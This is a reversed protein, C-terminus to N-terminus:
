KEGSGATNLHAATTSRCPIHQVLLGTPTCAECRVYQPETAPFPTVVPAGAALWCIAPLENVTAGNTHAVLSCTVCVSVSIGIQMIDPVFGEPLFLSVKISKELM